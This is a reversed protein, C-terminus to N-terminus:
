GFNHGLLDSVHRVIDIQNDSISQDNVPSSGLWEVGVNCDRAPADDLDPGDRGASALFDVRSAQDDSRAEDVNV